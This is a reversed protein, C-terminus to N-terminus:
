LSADSAILAFLDPMNSNITVFVNRGIKWANIALVRAKIKPFPSNSKVAAHRPFLFRPELYRIEDNQVSTMYQHALLHSHDPVYTVFFDPYM